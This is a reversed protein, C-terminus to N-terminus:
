TVIVAPLWMGRLQSPRFKFPPKSRYAEQMRFYRKLYHKTEPAVRKAWATIQRRRKIWWPPPLPLNAAYISTRIVKKIGALKTNDHKRTVEASKIIDNNIAHLKKLQEHNTYDELAPLIALHVRLRQYFSRRSIKKPTRRLANRAKAQHYQSAQFWEGIESSNNLLAKACHLGPWDIPRAVLGEKVGQSLIYRLCKLQSEHTPLASMAYRQHWLTGPLRYKQGLRRSLERKLFGMFASFDSPPGQLMLHIHNSMFAYGYLRISPWNLQAKALVGACLERIGKKPTLIFQGRLTKTVVHYPVSPDIYRAHRLQPSQSTHM